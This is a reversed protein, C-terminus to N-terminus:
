RVTRINGPSSSTISFETGNVLDLNDKGQLVVSGAGAGAGVAAGVVAGSGGGAIAGILAGLAAGVGARTATKTTQSSDRVTGENNVSVRDGNPQRVSDVVGAFRYSSGNRLRITDFGLDLNARGSVRGSTQTTSVTGQIIADRYEAPSSVHMTFRDGPQATRTSIPNDLVAIIQTGNPIVFDGTGSNGYSGNGLNGGYSGNGSGNYVSDWRAVDDTKDYVAVSTVTTDRNELYLRRTVRLQRRGVPEFTLYFDNMRDGQYNILLSRGSLSATTTVSRGNATREESARGDAVISVQPAVSSGISIQTGRKDIALRDPPTLRRELGRQARDRQDSSYSNNSITRSVIEAVNDSQQVNLQYTGTLMSDANAGYGMGGSGDGRGRGAGGGYPNDWNWSMRYYGALTSLDNRVLTWNRQAAPSLQNDRMFNNIAAARDLVEQVETTGSRRDNVSRRLNETSTEFDRVFSNISDESRTGNLTSNDLGRDISSRFTATRDVIRNILDSVQRDPVNYGRTQATVTLASGGGTLLLLLTFFSFLHKKM